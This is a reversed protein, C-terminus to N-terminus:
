FMEKTKDRLFDLAENCRLVVENGEEMKILFGSKCGEFQILINHKKIFEKVTMKCNPAQPKGHCNMCCPTAEKIYNM